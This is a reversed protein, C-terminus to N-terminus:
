LQTQSTKTVRGMVDTIIEQNQRGPGRPEHRSERFGATIVVVDSNATPGYDAAGTIRTNFGYVPGSQLLRTVQGDADHRDAFTWWCIDGLEREALWLACSAGVNGAGVVTIKNRM